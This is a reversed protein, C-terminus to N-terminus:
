HWIIHMFKSMHLLRDVIRFADLHHCSSALQCARNLDFQHLTIFYLNHLMGRPNRMSQMYVVSVRMTQCSYNSFIIQAILIRTYISTSKHVKLKLYKECLIEHVLHWM